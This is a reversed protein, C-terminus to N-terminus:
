LVIIHLHVRARARMRAHAHAFINTPTRTITRAHTTHTRARRQTRARREQTNSTPAPMPGTAQQLQRGHGHLGAHTVYSGIWCCINHDLPAEGLCPICRARSPLRCRHGCCLVSRCEAGSIRRRPAPPDLSADSCLWELSLAHLSCGAREFRLELGAFVHLQRPSASGRSPRPCASGVHESM